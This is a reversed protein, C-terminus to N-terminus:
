PHTIINHKMAIEAIKKDFTALGAGTSKALQIYLADYVTIDEDLALKFAEEAIEKSSHIRLKTWLKLLDKVAEIAEGKDIDHIKLAHKWVANLAEPLALDITLLMEGKRIWLRTLDRAKRSGEESLILKVLFSADLVIM